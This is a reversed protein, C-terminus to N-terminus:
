IGNVADDSFPEATNYVVIMVKPLPSLNLKNDSRALPDNGEFM